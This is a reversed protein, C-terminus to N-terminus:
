INSSNAENELLADKKSGLRHHERLSKFDRNQLATINEHLQQPELNIMFADRSSIM